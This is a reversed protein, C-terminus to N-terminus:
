GHTLRHPGMVRHTSPMAGINLVNTYAAKPIINNFMTYIATAQGYAGTPDNQQYPFSPIDLVWPAHTDLSYEIANDTRWIDVGRLRAIECLLGMAVLAFMSYGLGELSTTRDRDENLTGDSLIRRGPPTLGASFVIDNHQNYCTNLVTNNGTLSALSARYVNLWNWRNASEQNSSMSSLMSGCWSIFADHETKNDSEWYSLVFSAGYLVTTAHVYLDIPYALVGDDATPNISQFNKILSIAKQAFRIDTPAYAYRVGCDRIAAGIELLYTFDASRNYNGQARAPASYSLSANSISVFESWETQKNTLDQNQLDVSRAFLFGAPQPAPVPTPSFTAATRKNIIYQGIASITTEAYGNTQLDSLVQAPISQLDVYWERLAENASGYERRSHLLKADNLDADTINLIATRGHWGDHTGFDSFYVRRDEMRGWTTYSPKVILVDGVLPFKKVQFTDVLSVGPNLAMQIVLDSM